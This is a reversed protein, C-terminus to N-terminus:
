FLGKAADKSGPKQGYPVEGEKLVWLNGGVEVIETERRSLILPKIKEVFGVSGVALSETWCPERKIQDRAIREALSAQLNERLDEPDSVRLRWCLRDLDLLRYRRRTGMIEHYGVWPWEKPHKVVGCRNMNLEIGSRGGIRM